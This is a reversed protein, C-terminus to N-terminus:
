QCICKDIANDPIEWDCKTASCYYDSVCGDGINSYKSLWYCSKCCAGCNKLEKLMQRRYGNWYKEFDASDKKLEEYKKNLTDYNKTLLDFQIQLIDFDFKVDKIDSMKLILENILAKIDKKKFYFYGNLLVADKGDIEKIFDIVLERLDDYKENLM